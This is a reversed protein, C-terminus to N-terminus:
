ILLIILMTIRSSWILSFNMLILNWLTNLTMSIMHCPANFHLMLMKWSLVSNEVPSPGGHSFSLQRTNIKHSYRSRIITLSAMWLHFSWVRLVITSLKISTYPPSTKRLVLRIWIRLISVFGLPVRNKTSLSLTLCGNLWLYLTFLGLRLFIKLRKRLPHQKGRIYKDFNRVSQSPTLTLRLIM